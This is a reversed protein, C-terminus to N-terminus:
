EGYFGARGQLCSRRQAECIGKLGIINDFCEGDLALIFKSVINLLTWFNPYCHVSKCELVFIPGDPLYSQAEKCVRKIKKM